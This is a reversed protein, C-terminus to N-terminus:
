ANVRLCCPALSCRSQMLGVGDAQAARRRRKAHRGRAQEHERERKKRQAQVACCSSMSDMTSFSGHWVLLCLTMRPGFSCPELSLHPQPLQCVEYRAYDPNLGLTWLAFGALGFTRAPGAAAGLEGLEREQRPSAAPQGAEDAQLPAADPMLVEPRWAIENM